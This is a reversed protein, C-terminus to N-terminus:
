RNVNSIRDWAHRTWAVAVGVAFTAFSAAMAVLGPSGKRVLWEAPVSLLVATASALVIWDRRRGTVRSVIWWATALVLAVGSIAVDVQWGSAHVWVVADTLWAMGALTRLFSATANDSRWGLSHALLFVAATELIAHSPANPWLLATFVGAGCAGAFGLDMRSSRLACTVIFTAVALLMAQGRTFAPLLTQAAELPIGLVLLAASAFLLEKLVKRPAGSRRPLLVAYAIANIVALAEFLRSDGFSVLPSVFTLCFFAMEWRAGPQPVCDPIRRWLTWAAVMVAPGLYHLHFPQESIYSLCWFHAGTGIVWLAYVFLPLWHREPNLGGYRTPRPLLNAGGVLLPLAVYWLLLNPTIWNDRDEEIASPFVSPLAANILLVVAGLILARSPLNFLPYRKRTIVARVFAFLVAGGALAMGLRPNLLTGQSILMFPVLMLGNEVVVLLASDYWIKRRALVIAALVVLWEYFQLAFYNFLLNSQEEKFINPDLSLRYVGYLLLAASCLFFPNCVLLRRAWYRWDFAPAAPVIPPPAPSSHLWENFESSM